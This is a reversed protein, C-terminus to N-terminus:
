RWRSQLDHNLFGECDLLSWWGDRDHDLDLLLDDVLWPRNSLPIGRLSLHVILLPAEIGVDWGLFGLWTGGEPALVPPQQEAQRTQGQTTEQRTQVEAAALLLLLSNQVWVWHCREGVSDIILFGDQGDLVLHIIRFRWVNNSSHCGDLTGDDLLSLNRDLLIFSNVSMPLHVCLM